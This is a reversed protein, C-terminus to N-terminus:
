RQGDKLRFAYSATIEFRREDKLCCSAHVDAKLTASFQLVSADTPDNVRETCVWCYGARVPGFHLVARRHEFDVADQQGNGYKAIDARAQRMVEEQEADRMAFQHADAANVRSIRQFRAEGDLMMLAEAHYVQRSEETRLDALRMAEHGKDAQVLLEAIKHALRQRVQQRVQEQPTMPM